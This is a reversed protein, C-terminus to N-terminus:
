LLNVVLLVFALLGFSVLLGVGFTKSLAQMFIHANIMLHWVNLFILILFYVMALLKDSVLVTQDLTFEPTILLLPFAIVHVIIQAFLLSNITQIVRNRHKVLQLILFTYLSIGFILLLARIFAIDFSIKHNVDIIFLQTLLLMILLCCAIVTMVRSHPTDQPGRKFFCLQWYTKLVAVILSGGM